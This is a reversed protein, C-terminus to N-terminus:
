QGFINKFINIIYEEDLYKSLKNKYLYPEKLYSLYLKDNQDVEIVREKLKELSCGCDYFSIFSKPNFERHIQPNGWYIPVTGALMAEVIKETTYGVGESLEFAITFKYPRMFEIKEKPDSAGLPLGFNYGINNLLRGASDVKRYESLKHFFETRLSSESSYIFNCFKGKQAITESFNIEKKLLNSFPIKWKMLRLSYFPLRFHRGCTIDDEWCFSIAYDCKDMDPRVNENTYFIRVAKDKLEPMKPYFHEHYKGTHNSYVIFDPHESIEINYYKELFGFHNKWNFGSWFNRFQLKIHKKRHFLNKIPKGFVMM